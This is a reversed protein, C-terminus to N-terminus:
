AVSSSRFEHEFAAFPIDVLEWRGDGTDCPIHSKVDAALLIALQPATTSQLNWLHFVHHETESARDWENRTVHFTGRLGISSAKVEISLPRSDASGVVSLVDYGDENDDVSVWKPRRGTRNEEYLITQREGFRGIRNLQAQRQGRARAALDDWFDVVDSDFGGVLGAEVFVQSVDRGAFALVRMRGFSANQLWAPREVDIYDLIARRLAAEYTKLSLIRNGAPTIEAVNQAGSRMWDLRQVAEIVRESSIRGITPFSSGIEGFTIAQRLRLNLLELCAQVLGPSLGAV